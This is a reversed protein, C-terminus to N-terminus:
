PGVLKRARDRLEKARESYEGVDEYEKLLARLLSEATDNVIPEILLLRATHTNDSFRHCGNAYWENREGYSEVVPANALLAEVDAAKVYDCLNWLCIQLGAQKCLPYKPNSVARRRPKM